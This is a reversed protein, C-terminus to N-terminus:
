QQQRQTRRWTNPAQDHHKRFQRSFHCTHQYGVIAAIEEIKRDSEQLLARAASMRREIIWRNVTYETQNGVQSTLYAPSYGVAQAVESLTIPKHYNAEIFDFVPQLPECKPFISAPQDAVAAPAIPKQAQAEFCRQLLERKEIQAAVAELLDKVTSPKTLYDDAGLQMGRRIEEQSCMATLFVVPILATAANERLRSLVSYGDLEPMLIDCIVLSPLHQQALQIGSLGNDAGIADFGEVTLCDIFIERIAQEDEIILVTQRM